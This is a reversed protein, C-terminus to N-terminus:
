DCRCSRTRVCTSSSFRLARPISAFAQAFPRTACLKTRTNIPPTSPSIPRLSFDVSRSLNMDHTQQIVFDMAAFFAIAFGITYDFRDALVIPQMEQAPFADLSVLLPGICLLDSS